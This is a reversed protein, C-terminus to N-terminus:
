LFKDISLAYGRFFISYSFMGAVKNGLVFGRGILQELTALLGKRKQKKKNIETKKKGDKRKTPYFETRVNLAMTLSLRRWWKVKSFSGPVHLGRLPPALYAGTPRLSLLRYKPWPRSPRRTTWMPCLHLRSPFLSCLKSNSSESMKSSFVPFSFVNM